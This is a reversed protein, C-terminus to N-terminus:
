RRSGSVSLVLRSTSRSWLRVGPESEYWRNPAPHDEIVSAVEQWSPSADWSVDRCQGHDRYGVGMWRKPPPKQRLNRNIRKLYSSFKHTKTWGFYACSSPLTGKEQLSRAHKNVDLTKFFWFKPDGTIHFYLDELPLWERDRKEQFSIDTFSTIREWSYVLIVREEESLNGIGELAVKALLMRVLRLVERMPIKRLGFSFVKSVRLSDPITPLPIHRHELNNGQTRADNRVKTASTPTYMM